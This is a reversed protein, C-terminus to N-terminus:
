QWEAPGTPDLDQLHNMKNFSTAEVATTQAEEFFLFKM